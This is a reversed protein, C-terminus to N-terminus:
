KGARPKKKQTPTPPAIDAVVEKLAPVGELQDVIHWGKPFKFTVGSERFEQDQACVEQYAKAGDPHSTVRVLLQKARRHLAGVRMLEVWLPHATYDHEILQEAVETPVSKEDQDLAGYASARAAVAPLGLQLADTLTESESKGYATAIRKVDAQLKEAIPIDKQTFNEAVLGADLQHVLGPEKEFHPLAYRVAARIVASVTEGTKTTLSEIRVAQDEGLRVM